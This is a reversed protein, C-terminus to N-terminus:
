GRIGSRVMVVRLSVANMTGSRAVDGRFRDGLGVVGECRVPVVVGERLGLGDVDVVAYGM